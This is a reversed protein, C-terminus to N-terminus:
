RLEMATELTRAVPRRRRMSIAMLPGLERTVVLDGLHRASAAHLELVVVDSRVCACTVSLPSTLPTLVPLATDVEHVTEAVVPQATWGLWALHQM